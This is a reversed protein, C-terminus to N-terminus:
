RAGGAELFYETPGEARRRMDAGIVFGHPDDVIVEGHQSRHAAIAARKRDRM